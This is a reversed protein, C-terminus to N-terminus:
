RDLGRGAKGREQCAISSHLWLLERPLRCGRNISPPRTMSLYGISAQHSSSVISLSRWPRDRGAVGAQQNRLRELAHHSETLPGGSSLIRQLTGYRLWAIESGHAREGTRGVDNSWVQSSAIALRGIGYGRVAITRAPSTTQERSVVLFREL